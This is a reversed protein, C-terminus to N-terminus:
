REEWQKGASGCDDIVWCGGEEGGGFCCRNLEEKTYGMRKVIELFGAVGGLLM